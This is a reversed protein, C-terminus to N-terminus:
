NCTGASGNVTCPTACCKVDPPKCAGNACQV